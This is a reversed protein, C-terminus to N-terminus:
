PKETHVIEALGLLKASITLQAARAAELNIRLRVRANETVLGIMGGRRAFSQEASEGVTLIPQGKLKDLISEIRANESKSIFLIHPGAVEELKGYRRIQIPKGHARENKVLEDLFGGFPDAGLIGIVFPDEAKGLAAAPWDVFQTFNFLFTAKLDYERAATQARAPTVLVGALFLFFIGAQACSRQAKCRDLQPLVEM